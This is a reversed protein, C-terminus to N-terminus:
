GSVPVLPRPVGEAPSSAGFGSPLRDGAPGARHAARGVRVAEGFARAMAVPDQAKAIGTNVLVGAAGWEMVRVADAPSGLGADVIVPVPCREIIARLNHPNLVGLTSGIPAAGPMVAVAGAEALRLALAVDDSAYPLVTFGQAVLERTAEMTAIPDPLLTEPDGVVEVKILDSVSAARALRALRVAEAATTAGATNALIRYAKLDLQELETRRDGDLHFRRISVTLMESGAAAIAAALVGSSPFRATGHILRSDLEVEGLRLRDDGM